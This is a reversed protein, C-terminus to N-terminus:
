ASADLRQLLEAELPTWDDDKLAGRDELAKLVEAFRHDLSTAPRWDFRSTFRSPDVACDVDRFPFWDRAKYGDAAAGLCRMDVDISAVRALLQTLGASTVLEPDAVNYAEFAASQVQAARALWTVIASGLDDEHVFQYVAWGKGPVLIPRRHRIRRFFWSERDLDNNPGFIYPPRIAACLPIGAARYAEEVETKGRGYDGWASGGGISDNELPPTRVRDAYVAASSIVVAHTIGLQMGAIISAQSGTYANTDVLCDFVKGQVAAAVAHANNRDATLQTVGELRRSGRNLVSVAFGVALLARVVANGVFGSGGIVLANM